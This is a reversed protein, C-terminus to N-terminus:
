PGGGSGGHLLDEDDGDLAGPGGGGPPEERVVPVPDGGPLDRAAVAPRHGRVLAPEVLDDVVGVDGGV